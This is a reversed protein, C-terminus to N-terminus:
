YPLEDLEEKEIKELENCTSCIGGTIFNIPVLEKCIDCIEAKDTWSSIIDLKYKRQLGEILASSIFEADPKDHAYFVHIAEEISNDLSMIQMILIYMEMEEHNENTKNMKKKDRKM